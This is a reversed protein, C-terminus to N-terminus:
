LDDWRSHSTCGQGVAYKCGKRHRCKHARGRRRREWLFSAEAQKPHSFMLLLAHTAAEWFNLICAFKRRRSWERAKQDLHWACDKEAEPFTQWLSPHGQRCQCHTGDSMMLEFRELVHWFAHPSIGQSPGMSHKHGVQPKISVWCLVTSESTFIKYLRPLDASHM